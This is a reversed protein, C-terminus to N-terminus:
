EVKKTLLTTEVCNTSIIADSSNPKINPYWGEWRDDGLIVNEDVNELFLSRATAFWFFYIKENQITWYNWSGHPGM